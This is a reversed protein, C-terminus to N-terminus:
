PRAAPSRRRGGTPTTATSGTSVPSSADRGPWARRPGCTQRNSVVSRRIRRRSASDSAVSMPSRPSGHCPVVVGGGPVSVIAANMNECRRSIATAKTRQSTAGCTSRDVRCSGAVNKAGVQSTTTPDSWTIANLSAPAARNPGDPVVPSSTTREPSSPSRAYRTPRCSADTSITSTSSATRHAEPDRLTGDRPPRQINIWRWQLGRRRRLPRRRRRSIPAGQAGNPSRAVVCSTPESVRAVVTVDRGRSCGGCNWSKVCGSKEAPAPVAITSPRRVGDTTVCPGALGQDCFCCQSRRARNGGAAGTTM